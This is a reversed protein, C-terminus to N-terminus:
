DNPFGGFNNILNWHKCSRRICKIKMSGYIYFEVPINPGESISKGFAFYLLGDEKREILRKGCKKCSVFEPIM